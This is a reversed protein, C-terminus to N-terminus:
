TKLILRLASFLYEKKLVYIFALYNLVSLTGGVFISLYINSGLSGWILFELLRISGISFLAIILYTSILKVNYLFGIKLERCTYYNFFLSAFFVAILSAILLVYIDQRFVIVLFIIFLTQLKNIIELRLIISSHTVIKLITINYSAIVGFIGAISIISLFLSASEWRKSFLFVLVERSYFCLFIFIPVLILLLFQLCYKYHSIFKERNNQIKAFVPFLVKIVAGYINTLPLQRVTLSQTYYGVLAPSYFRGIVIQYINATLNNLLEVLSLRYGYGFHKKFVVPSFGIRPNWDGFIWHFLAWFFNQLIYMWILSWVGYGMYAVYIAIASSLIISPFKMLAQKKFNLSKLLYVSQVQVFAQIIITLGFVRILSTIIEKNYFSAILPAVLFLILYIIVSFGLNSVFLTAYDREHAEKSRLVSGAIGFDMLTSSITVFLFIMGLLGYDEPFLKRALVMNVFFNILQGGFM